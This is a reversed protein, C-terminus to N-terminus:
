IMLAVDAEPPTIAVRDSFTVEWGGLGADALVALIASRLSEARETDGADMARNYRRSLRVLNEAHLDSITGGMRYIGLAVTDSVM